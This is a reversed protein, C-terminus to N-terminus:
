WVEHAEFDMDLEFEMHMRSTIDGMNVFLSRDEKYYGTEQAKALVQALPNINTTFGADIYVCPSAEESDESEGDEDRVQNGDLWNMFEDADFDPVEDDLNLEAPESFDLSLNSGSHRTTLSEQGEESSLQSPTRTMPLPSQESPSGNNFGYYHSRQYISPKWKVLISGYTATDNDALDCSKKWSKGGLVKPNDIIVDSPYIPNWFASIPESVPTSTNSANLALVLGNYVQEMACKSVVSAVIPMAPPLRFQNRTSDDHMGTSVGCQPCEMVNQFNVGFSRHSDQEVYPFIAAHKGGPHNSDGLFNSCVKAVIEFINFCMEQEKLLVRELNGANRLAQRYRRFLYRSLQASTKISLTFDDSCLLICENPGPPVGDVEFKVPMGKLVSTFEIQNYKPQTATEHCVSLDKQISIRSEKLPAGNYAKALYSDYLGPSYLGAAHGKPTLIKYGSTPTPIKWSPRLGLSTVNHSHDNLDHYGGDLPLSSDRYIRTEHLIVLEMFPHYHESQYGRKMDPRYSPPTPAPPPTTKKPPDTAKSAERRLFRKLQDKTIIVGRVEVTTDKGHRIWRELVKRLAVRMETGKVNKDINWERIKRLYQRRTASFGHNTQMLEMCKHLPINDEVYLKTFNERQANWDEPSITKSVRRRRGAPKQASPM